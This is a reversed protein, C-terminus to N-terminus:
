AGQEAIRLHKEVLVVQAAADVPAILDGAGDLGPGHEQQQQCRLQEGRGVIMSVQTDGFVAGLDRALAAAKDKGDATRYSIFLKPM